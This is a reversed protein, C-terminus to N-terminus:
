GAGSSSRNWEVALEDRQAFRELHSALVHEVRAVTESDDGRAILTLASADDAIVIQGTGTGIAATSTAGETRFELKRGLHSVLQKAYRDAKPTVVRASGTLGPATV